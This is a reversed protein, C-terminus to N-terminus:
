VFPLEDDLDNPDIFEPDEEDDEEEEDDEDKRRRSSKKESTKASTKGSKKRPKEKDEDKSSGIFDIQRVIVDTTYHTDGEKDEYKGTQISGSVGLQSGKTMYQDILEATKGFAVCSIFDANDADRRVALTFRALLGANKGKGYESLAPDRTLRGILNVNNM